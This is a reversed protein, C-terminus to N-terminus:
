FMFDGAVLEARSVGEITLSDGGLTIVVGHKGDEAHTFVETFDDMGKWQSVDILDLGQEFDAIRDHDWGTAFQFFDGDAGGFLRDKGEEGFLKDNGARGRLVNDGANGHIQNSDDGGFGNIDKSGLLFLNEVFVPLTYSVTAKVTDDGEGRNETLTIGADSTVLTDNGTSGSIEGEISGGRTDLTDDGPGLQVKGVIRGDNVIRDNAAFALVGAGDTGGQILGHNVLTGRADDRANLAVGYVSGIIVGGAENVVESGAGIVIIGNSAEIRGSNVISTDDGYTIIGTTYDATSLIRGTRGVVVDSDNGESAVGVDLVDKIFGDIIITTDNFDDDADIGIAAGLIRGDRALQWTQHAATIAITDTFKGHFVHNKM